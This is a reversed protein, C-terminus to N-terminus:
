DFGQMKANHCFVIKCAASDRLFKIELGFYSKECANPNAKLQLLTRYRLDPAFEFAFM